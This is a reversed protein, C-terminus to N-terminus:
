PVLGALLLSAMFRTNIAATTMTDIALPNGTMMASGSATRAVVDSADDQEDLSPCISAWPPHQWPFPPTQPHEFFVSLHQSPVVAVAFPQEQRALSGM